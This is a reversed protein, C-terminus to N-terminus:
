AVSGLLKRTHQPLSYTPCPMDNCLQDIKQELVGDSYEKRSMWRTSGRERERYVSSM